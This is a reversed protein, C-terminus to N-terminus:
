KSNNVYLPLSFKVSIGGKNNNEISITGGHAKIISNCFSLGAGYQKREIKKKEKDNFYFDNIDKLKSYSIGGGNDSIEFYIMNISLNAEYNIEITTLRKTHLISNDILSNFLEMVYIKDVLLTYPLDKKEIILKRGRLKRRYNFKIEKLLDEVLEQEKNVVSNSEQNLLKDLNSNLDKLDNLKNNIDKLNTILDEKTLKDKKLILEEVQSDLENIPTKLDKSFINLLNNQYKKKLEDIEFKEQLELSHESDLTVLLQQINNKIFEIDKKKLEKTYIIFTGYKEDSRVPFMIFPLKDYKIMGKGIIIEQELCYNIEEKYNEFIFNYKNEGYLKEEINDYILLDFNYQDKFKEILFYYIKRTDKLTLFMNSIKYLQEIKEENFRAELIQKQIITTIFTSILCVSLFIVSSILEKPQEILISYEPKIFIFELAITLIFSSILPFIYRKTEVSIILISLISFLYINEVRVKLEHLAVSFLIDIVLIFTTILINKYLINERIKLRM